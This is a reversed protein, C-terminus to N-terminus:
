TVQAKSWASTMFFPKVTWMIPAPQLVLAMGM